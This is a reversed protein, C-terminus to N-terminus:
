SKCTIIGSFPRLQNKFELKLGTIISRKTIKAFFNSRFSEGFVDIIKNTTPRVARMAELATEPPASAFEDILNSEPGPDELLIQSKHISVLSVM